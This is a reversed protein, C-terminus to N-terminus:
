AGVFCTSSPELLTRRLVRRRYFEVQEKANAFGVINEDLMQTPRSDLTDGM